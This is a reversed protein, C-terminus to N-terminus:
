HRELLDATFCVKLSKPNRHEPALLGSVYGTSSVSSRSCQNGSFSASGLRSPGIGAAPANPSSNSGNNFGAKPWPLPSKVVTQMGRAPLPKRVM